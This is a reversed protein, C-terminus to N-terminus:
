ASDELIPIPYRNAIKRIEDVKFSMGYLHVAIIAKPKKGKKIRDVIAEELAVPCINWTHEESDIFIPIAGLYLISNASASFTM